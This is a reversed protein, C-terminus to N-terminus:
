RFRTPRRWPPSRAPKPSAQRKYVDLPDFIKGAAKADLGFGCDEVTVVVASHETRSSIILDRAGGAVGSMADMGNMMLNLVVQQLQVRDAKIKPLDPALDTRISIHHRM